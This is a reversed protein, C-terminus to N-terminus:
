GKHLTSNEYEDFEAITMSTPRLNRQADVPIWTSGSRKFYQGLHDAFLSEESESQLLVTHSNPNNLCKVHESQISQVRDKLEGNINSYPLASKVERSAEEFSYGHVYMLYAIAFTPTRNEAKVCHLLVTKGENLWSELVRSVDFYSFDLNLNRNSKDIVRVAFQYRPDVPSENTGIRSLSIAADFTYKGNSLMPQGGLLLKDAVSLVGIDQTEDFYISDVKECEPWEYPQSEGGQLTLVGLRVLDQVRFNDYGHLQTVWRGPIASQGWWSGLLMGAIAAVTDTDKGARVARELAHEFHMAEFLGLEPQQPPITTHFIASWAAQFASVVFGNNEFQWMAKAEAEDIYKEWVDQRSQDLLHLADRPSAKTGLVISQRMAECWLVCAESALPDFHTLTSVRIVADRLQEPEDLYQLVIPAARMLSGNGATHGTEEHLDQSANWANEATPSGSVQSLINRTQIGVDKSTRSWKVWDAVIESLADDSHLSQGQAIVKLISVAMATDDTWEGHAFNGARMEVAETYPVRPMFEYGAGLADGTAMGLIAGIARDNQQSSLMLGGLDESITYPTSRAQVTWLLIRQV